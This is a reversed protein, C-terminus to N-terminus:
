LGYRGASSRWLCLWPRVGGLGYCGGGRGICTGRVPGPCGPLEVPVEKTKVM